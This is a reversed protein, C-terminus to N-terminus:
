AAPSPWRMWGPTDYDLLVMDFNSKRFVNLGNEGSDASSVEYGYLSLMKAVVILPVNNDDVVLIKESNDM